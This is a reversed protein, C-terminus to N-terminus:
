DRSGPGYFERRERRIHAEGGGLRQFVDKGIGRLKRFQDAIGAVTPAADILRFTLVLNYGMMKPPGEQHELVLRNAEQLKRSVLAACVAAARDGPLRMEKVVDGARVTFSGEGRRRAPEIYAVRIHDRIRQALSLTGLSGGSEELEPEAGLLRYTYVVTTSMGSPPGQVNELHVRNGELFKQSRLATCVAPASGNGLRMESMVDGSRIRIFDEGRRRAPDVYRVRAHDRIRDAQSTEM